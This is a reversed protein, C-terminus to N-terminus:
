HKIDCIYPYSWSCLNDHIYDIDRFSPNEVGFYLCMENENDPQGSGWLFDRITVTKNDADLYLGSSELDKHIGIWFNSIYGTLALMTRLTFNVRREIEERSQDLSFDSFLVGGLNTCNLQADNWNAREEIFKLHEIVEEETEGADCSDNLGGRSIHCKRVYTKTYEDGYMVIAFYWKSWKTVVEKKNIQCLDSSSNEDIMNDELCLPTTQVHMGLYSCGPTRSVNVGAYNKDASNMECLSPM